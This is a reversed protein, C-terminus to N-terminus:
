WDYVLTKKNCLHPKKYNEGDMEEHTIETHKKV